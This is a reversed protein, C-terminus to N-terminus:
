RRFLLLSRGVGVVDGDALPAKAGPALREFNLSTGNRSGELDSLLFRGERWEVLANEASVFPDYDLPVAVGRRRGVVWERAGSAPPELRFSRGEDLGKVLLLCPRPPPGGGARERPLTALRLDLSPSLRALDRFREACAFLLQHNVVYESTARADRATERALVFGAEVLKDLHTKVTQRALPPGAEEEGAERRVVIESLLRPRRLRALLQIRTPHALADLANSLATADDAALADDM